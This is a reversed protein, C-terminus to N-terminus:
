RSYRSNQSTVISETESGRGPSVDALQRAAAAARREFIRRMNTEIASPGTSGAVRTALLDLPTHEFHRASADRVRRAEARRVADQQRRRERRRRAPTEALAQRVEAELDGGRAGPQMRTAYEAFLSTMDDGRRLAGSWQQSQAEDIFYPVHSGLQRRRRRRDAAELALLAEAHSLGPPPSDYSLISAGTSPSPSATAVRQRRRPWGADDSMRASSAGRWEANGIGSTAGMQALTREYRTLALANTEGPHQLLNAYAVFAARTQDTGRLRGNAQLAEANHLLHARLRPQGDALTARDRALQREVPSLMTEWPLIRVPGSSDSSSNTSLTLNYVTAAM